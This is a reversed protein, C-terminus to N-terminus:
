SAGKEKKLQVEKSMEERLRTLEDCIGDLRKKYYEITREQPKETKNGKSFTFHGKVKDQKNARIYQGDNAKSIAALKSFEESGLYETPYVDITTDSEEVNIKDKHESFWLEVDEKGVQVM